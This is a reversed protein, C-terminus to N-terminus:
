RPYRDTIARSNLLAGAAITLVIVTGLIIAATTWPREQAVRQQVIQALAVLWTGASLYAAVQLVILSWRLRCFFLLPVLLCLVTLAINGQRLFHAGILLAAVVYLVIRSIM